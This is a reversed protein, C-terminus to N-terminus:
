SESEDGILQIRDGVRIQFESSGDEIGDGDGDCEIVAYVGLYPGYQPFHKSLLQPVDLKKADPQLPDVGIGACRVTKSLVKLMITQGDKGEGDSRIVKLRQGVFDFEKWPELGDVVINPRFRMSNLKIMEEEMASDQYVANITEEVQRVTAENVIHITRSDGNNMKFGKSTNGFQHKHKQSQTQTVCVLSTSTQDDDDTISPPNQELFYNAFADRGEITNLDFTCTRIPMQLNNEDKDDRRSITLLRQINQEDGNGDTPNVIKYSTKFRAMFEPDTFACLFNEKHIWKPNMEDFMSNSIYDDNTNTPKPKLKLQKLLAFRRDDPFTKDDVNLSIASPEDPALGKVAYRALKTIIMENSSSPTLAPELKTNIDYNNATALLTLLELPPRMPNLHLSYIGGPIGVKICPNHHLSCDISRPLSGPM